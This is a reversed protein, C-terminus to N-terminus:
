QIEIQTYEFYSTEGFQIKEKILRSEMQCVWGPIGLDM